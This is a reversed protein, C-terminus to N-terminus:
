WQNRDRSRRSATVRRTDGARHVASSSGDGTHRRSPGAPQPIGGGRLTSRVGRAVAVRPAYRTRRSKLGPEFVATSRILRAAGGEDVGDVILRALMAVSPAGGHGGGFHGGHPAHESAPHIRDSQVRVITSARTKLHDPGPPTYVCSIQGNPGVQQTNSFPCMEQTNIDLGEGAREPPISGTTRTRSTPMARGHPAKRGKSRCSTPTKPAPAGM